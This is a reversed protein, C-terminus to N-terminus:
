RNQPDHAQMCSLLQWGNQRKVYTRLFLMRDNGNETQAGTVVATDGAIRVAASDTTLTEIKFSLWLDIAQTKDRTNGNQNTEAFNAALIRNLTVTDNHLKAVRFEEDVKMIAAQDSQAQSFAPFSFIAVALLSKLASTM